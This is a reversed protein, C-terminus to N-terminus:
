YMKMKGLTLNIKELLTENYGASFQESAFLRCQKPSRKSSCDAKGKHYTPKTDIIFETITYLKFYWNNTDGEVFVKRKDATRVM